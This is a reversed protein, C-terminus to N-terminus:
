NEPIEFNDHPSSVCAFELNYKGKWYHLHHDCDIDRRWAEADDRGRKRNPASGSKGTRLNHTDRMNTGELTEVIARLLSKALEPKFTLRELISSLFEAGIRYEPLLCNTSNNKCFAMKIAEALVSDNSAKLLLEAEDVWDIIGGIDEAVLINEVLHKTSKSQSVGKGDYDPFGSVLASVKISKTQTEHLALIHCPLKKKSMLQSTALLVVCRKLDNRIQDGPCNKFVDPETTIQEASLEEVEIGTKEICDEFNSTNYMLAEVQVTVDQWNYKAVGNRSFMQKMTVYDPYLNDEYLMKDAFKSTNVDVWSDRQLEKWDLLREVYREITSKTPVAPIAFVSADITLNVLVTKEKPRSTDKM